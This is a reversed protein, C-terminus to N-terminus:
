VSVCTFAHVCVCVCVVCVCLCVCVWIPLCFHVFTLLQWLYDCGGALAPSGHVVKLFEQALTLCVGLVPGLVWVVGPMHRASMIHSGSTGGRGQCLIACGTTEDIGLWLWTGLKTKVQVQTLHWISIEKKLQLQHSMFRHVWSGYGLAKVVLGCPECVCVCVCVCVYACVCVFVQMCDCVCVSAYVYVWFCVCM